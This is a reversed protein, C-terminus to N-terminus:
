AFFKRTVAVLGYHLLTIAVQALVAAITYGFGFKMVRAFTSTGSGDDFGAGPFVRALLLSTKWSSRPSM